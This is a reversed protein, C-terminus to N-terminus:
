IREEKTAIVPETDYKDLLGKERADAACLAEIEDPWNFRSRRRRAIWDIYPGLGILFLVWMIGRPEQKSTFEKPKEKPELASIGEEMYRRITEYENYVHRFSYLGTITIGGLRIVEAKYGDSENSGPYCFCLHNVGIASHYAVVDQWRVSVFRRPRWFRYSRVSFHVLQAQRNYRIVTLPFLHVFFVWFSIPFVGLLLGIMGKLYRDSQVIDVGLWLLMVSFALLPITITPFHWQILYSSQDTEIYRENEYKEGKDFSINEYGGTYKTDLPKLRYFGVRKDLKDIQKLYAQKRASPEIERDVVEAQYRM